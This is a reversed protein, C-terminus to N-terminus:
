PSKFHGSTLNNFIAPFPETYFFRRRSGGVRECSNYGQITKCLVTASRIRMIGEQPLLPKMRKGPIYSIAKRGMMLGIVLAMTECGITIDAWLCDKFLHNEYLHTVTVRDQKKLYAYKDPNESPHCRIRLEFRQDKGICKLIDEVNDYETFGWYDKRGHKHLTRYSLPMSFYLIKVRQGLKIQKKSTQAQRAFLAANEFYPNEIRQIRRRPFQEALALRFAWPDGAFVFDPLNSIWEGPYGFRERYNCWHDLFSATKIRLIQARKIIDLELSSRWSTGTLVLDLSAVLLDQDLSSASKKKFIKIGESLGEQRFIDVAPGSLWGSWSYRRRYKKVLGGLIQAGGADHAVVLIRKM